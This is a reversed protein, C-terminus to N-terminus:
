AAVSTSAPELGEENLIALCADVARADYRRGRGDTLEKIVHEMPRGPRYPRHALMAEAVDCVALIRSEPLIADGTLGNPYGSGDLREHHQGVYTAVPWDFSIKELIEVGIRVHERILMMEANSLKGPKSLLESPIGSKGIDHLIGAIELAELKDDTMGLRRGVRRALSAVRREHDATYPDRMAILRSLSTILQLLSEKSRQLAALRGREADDYRTWGDITDMSRGLNTALIQLYQLDQDPFADPERSYICLVSAVRGGTIMPLTVFSGVSKTAPDDGSEGAVENAIGIRVLQPQGSQMSDKIAQNGRASPAYVASAENIHDIPEGAVAIVRVAEAPDETLEGIWAFRYGAESVLAHCVERAMAGRNGTRVMARISSTLARLLKNLNGVKIEARQRGTVDILTVYLMLEGDVEIPHPHIEVRQVANDAAVRDASFVNLRRVIAADIWERVLAKPTTTVIDFVTLQRLQERTRGFWTVAQFNGDIIKGDTPDVLLQPLGNGLFLAEVRAAARRADSIARDRHEFAIRLALLLLLASALVFALGKGVEAFLASGGGDPGGLLYVDSAVIWGSGVMLYAGPVWLDARRSWSAMM